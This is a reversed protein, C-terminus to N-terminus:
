LAQLYEMSQKISAIPDPSQDQEVHCIKVGIEAAVDIIPEMAIIGDGLEQFADNPLGGYMPLKLGDKLDKLHLQSVRGKMKKLQTVPDHGGAKIWFVDVEFQMEDSFEALLVDFGTKGDELAEFEFSHNHYSLQIGAKKALTAAKNCNAALKKYDDLSKREHDHLYPVVLHSLGVEKARDVISEFSKVGEKTPNTVSEWQFHSSHLKLGCDKAADIMPQCDPFNYMEGQNYGADVVAKITAPTDKAIENRLTYLQIGIEKRYVNEKELAFLPSAAHSAIFTATSASLFHRRNM